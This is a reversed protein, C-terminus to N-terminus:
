GRRGYWGWRDAADALAKVNEARANAPISCGSSLIFGGGKGIEAILRRCYDMVEDRTGFALLTSPVDGMICMRDGLIEKAKLIDTTGDLELICTRPPLRRFWHLGRTWSTDCHLVTTLGNGALTHVIQELIPWVLEEFHAPSILTPGTRALGVFVRPVGVMKALMVAQATAADCLVRSAAKVKDPRDFLDLGFTPLSRAYSLYEFPLILYAGVAMQAGAAEILERDRAFDAGASQILPLAAPGELEPYLRARFDAQFQAAGAEIVFDYDEATMVEREDVQHIEDAPIDKGPFRIRAPIGLKLFIARATDAAFTLDWPGLDRMTALVAAIRKDADEMLDANSTGTYAAAYHDLLPGVPVRDPVELAVVADIREKSSVDSAEGTEQAYSGGRRWM